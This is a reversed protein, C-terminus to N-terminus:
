DLEDMGGEPEVVFEDVGGTEQEVASEVKVSGETKAPFLTEESDGGKDQTVKEKTPFPEGAAEAAKRRAERDARRARRAEKREEKALEAERREQEKKAKKLDKRQRKMAQSLAKGMFKEIRNNVFGFVWRIVMPGVNIGYGALAGGGGPNGQASAILAAPRIPIRPVPFFYKSTMVWSLIVSVSLWFGLSDVIVMLCMGFIAKKSNLERCRSFDHRKKDLIM